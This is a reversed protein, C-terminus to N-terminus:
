EGGAIPLNALEYGKAKIRFPIERYVTRIDERFTQLSSPSDSFVLIGGGGGAGIPFATCGHAEARGYIEQAGEMYSPCLVTRVERYHRIAEIANDWKRLRLATRFQYAIERKTGHLRYGESGLLANRWVTNVDTSSRTRGSHFIAMRQELQPYDEEPILKFRLSEGYGTEPRGPIGWPFWVYDTVGGYVVNAQEQTGTISVGFDQEVRSAMAILQTKSFPRGALENALICVGTTATASGGLGSSQIGARLNQLVFMVGRLGFIDLIKILWNEKAPPVEGARAVVETGYEISRVGILNPPLPHAEIRTGTDITIGVTRPLMRTWEATPDM